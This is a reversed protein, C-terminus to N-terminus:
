QVTQTLSASSGSFNKGGNYSFYNATINHSGSALKTTTYSATGGEGLTVSKLIKTGDMFTVSGSVTGGFEPTVTATFTVSQGYTSPNM